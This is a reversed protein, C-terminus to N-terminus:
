CLKKLSCGIYSHNMYSFSIKYFIVMYYCSRDGIFKHTYKLIYNLENFYFKVINFNIFSDREVNIILLIIINLYRCINLNTENKNNNNTIHKM